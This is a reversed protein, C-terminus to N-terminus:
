TKSRWLEEAQLARKVKLLATEEDYRRSLRLAAAWLCQDLSRPTLADPEVKAVDRLWACARELDHSKLAITSGPVTPDTKWAWRLARREIRSVRAELLARERVNYFVRRLKKRLWELRLKDVEIRVAGRCHVSCKDAFKLPVGLCPRGTTRAIAACRLKAKGANRAAVWRAIHDPDRCGLGAGLRLANSSSPLRVDAASPPTLAISSMVHTALIGQRASFPIIKGSLFGHALPLSITPKEGRFGLDVHQAPLGLAPRDSTHPSPCTFSPKATVVTIFQYQQLNNDLANGEM